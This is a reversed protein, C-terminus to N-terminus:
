IWEPVPLWCLQKLLPFMRLESFLFNHCIQTFNFCTMHTHPCPSFCLQGASPPSHGEMSGRKAGQGQATDGGAGWSCPHADAVPGSHGCVWIIGLLVIACCCLSKPFCHPAPWPTPPLPPPNAGEQKCGPSISPLPLSPPPLSPPAPAPTPAPLAATGLSATPHPVGSGLGLEALEEGSGGASVLCQAAGESSQLVEHGSSGASQEGRPEGM